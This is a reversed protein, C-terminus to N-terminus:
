TITMIHVLDGPSPNGNEHARRMQLAKMDLTKLFFNVEDLLDREDVIDTAAIEEEGEPTITVRIYQGSEKFIEIICNNEESFKVQISVMDKHLDYEEPNM